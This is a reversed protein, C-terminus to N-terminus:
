IGMPRIYRDYFRYQIEKLNPICDEDKLDDFYPLNPDERKDLYFFKHEINNHMRIDSKDDLKECEIFDLLCYASFVLTHFDSGIIENHHVFNQSPIFTKFGTEELIERKIADHITEGFELHGGPFTWKNKFPDKERRM